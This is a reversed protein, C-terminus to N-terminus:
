ARTRLATDKECHLDAKKQNYWAIEHSLLLEIRNTLKEQCISVAFHDLKKLLCFLGNFFAILAALSLHGYAIGSPV